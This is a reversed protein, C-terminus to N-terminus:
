DMGGKLYLLDKLDVWIFWRKNATIRGDLVRYCSVQVDGSLLDVMWLSCTKKTGREVLKQKKIRRKKKNKKNPPPSPFFLLGPGLLRVLIL